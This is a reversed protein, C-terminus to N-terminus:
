LNRGILESKEPCVCLASVAKQLKEHNKKFLELKDSLYGQNPDGKRWLQVLDRAYEVAVLIKEIETDLQSLNKDFESSMTLCIKIESKTLLYSLYSDYTMHFYDKLGAYEESTLTDNSLLQLLTISAKMAPAILLSCRDDKLNISKAMRQFTKLYGIILKHVAAGNKAQLRALLPQIYQTLLCVFSSVLNDETFLNFTNKILADMLTIFSYVKTSSQSVRAQFIEKTYQQQDLSPYSIRLHEQDAMSLLHNRAVQSEQAKKYNQNDLKDLVDIMKMFIVKMYEACVALLESDNSNGFLILQEVLKDTELISELPFDHLYHILEKRLLRIITSKKGFQLQVSLDFM